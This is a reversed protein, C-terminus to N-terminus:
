LFTYYSESVLYPVRFSVSETLLCLLIKSLLFITRLLQLPSEATFLGQQEQLLALNRQWCGCSSECNATVGTGPFGVSNELRQLCWVCLHHGYMCAPFISIYM